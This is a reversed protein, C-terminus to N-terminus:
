DVGGTIDPPVQGADNADVHRTPSLATKTVCQRLYRLPTQNRGMLAQLRAASDEAARRATVLTMWMTPSTM